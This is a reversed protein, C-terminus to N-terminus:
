IPLFGSADGAVPYALLCIECCFSIILSTKSYCIILSLIKTGTSPSLIVSAVTDFHNFFSPSMTSASSGMTSNSVSLTFRSTGEGIDPVNTSILEFSPETTSTPASRPDTEVSALPESFSCFISFILGVTFSSLTTFKSEEFFSGSIKSFSSFSFISSFCSSISSGSIKVLSTWFSEVVSFCDVSWFREGATLFITVSFLISGVDTLPEPFSPLINFPSKILRIPTFGGGESLFILYPWSSLILIVLSLCVIALLNFCAWSFAARSVVNLSTSM